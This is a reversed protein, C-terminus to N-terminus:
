STITDHLEDECQQTMLLQHQQCFHQSSNYHAGNRLQCQRLAIEVLLDLRRQQTISLFVQNVMIDLLMTTNYSGNIRDFEHHKHQLEVILELAASEAIASKGFLKGANLIGLNRTEIFGSVLPDIARGVLHQQQRVLSVADDAVLQHGRDLLTLALESKGSGSPGRLLVGSGDISLLVGSVTTTNRPHM